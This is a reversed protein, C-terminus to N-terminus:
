NARVLGLQLEQDSATRNGMHLKTVKDLHRTTSTAAVRDRIDTEKKVSFMVTAGSM